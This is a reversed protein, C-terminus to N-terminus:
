RAMLDMAFAIVVPMTLISMLTTGSVMGVSLDVDRNYKSAFMTVMAAVPASAAAVLSLIMTHNLSGRFPYLAFTLALPCVVLRMSAVFYARSSRAVSGLRAGALHYGIVLMALPTNLSAMMRVPTRVVEPLSVSFFFFPLGLALGVTGPNVFTIWLGSGGDTARGTGRMVRLGWGWAMLNFVAVYVIGFFVGEEGFVAQELPIGMFGANSFVVSLRLVSAVRVDKERVTLNALVVLVLHMALAILFALGLQALISSDFPRQFVDVILCPTVLLLLVNVMGRVTFPGFLRLWRCAAGVGVLAFLVAVQNAVILFDDM